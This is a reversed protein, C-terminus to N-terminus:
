TPYEPEAELLERVTTLGAVTSVLLPFTVTPLLPEPFESTIELPPVM